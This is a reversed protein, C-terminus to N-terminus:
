KGVFFGIIKRNKPSIPVEIVKQFPKKPLISLIWPKIIQHELVNNEKDLWLTLFPFFVFFSTLAGREYVEKGFDFLLNDANRTRFTLGTGKRIPGTKLVNLKIKRGKFNVVIDM